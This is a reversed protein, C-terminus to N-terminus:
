KNWTVFQAELIIMGIRQKVQPFTVPFLHSVYRDRSCASYVSPYPPLIHDNTVIQHSFSIPRNLENLGLCFLRWKAPSM